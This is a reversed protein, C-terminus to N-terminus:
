CGDICAISKIKAAVEAGVQKAVDFRDSVSMVVALAPAQGRGVCTMSVYAGGREGAVEVQNSHVNRFQLGRATDAAFRMCTAESATRVTAREFYLAAARAKPAMAAAAIALICVAIFRTPTLRM